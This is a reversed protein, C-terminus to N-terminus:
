GYDPDKLLESGSLGGAIVFKKDKGFIDYTTVENHLKLELISYDTRAFFTIVISVGYGMALCLLIISAIGGTLTRYETQGDPLYFGFQQSNLDLKSICNSFRRLGKFSKAESQRQM